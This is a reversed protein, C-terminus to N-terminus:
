WEIDVAAEVPALKGGKSVSRADWAVPVSKDIEERQKDLGERGSVHGGVLWVVGVLLFFLFPCSVNLHARRRTLPQSSRGGLAM